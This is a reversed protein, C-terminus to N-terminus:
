RQSCLYRKKPPPTRPLALLRHFPSPHVFCFEIFIRVGLYLCSFLGVKKKQCCQFPVYLLRLLGKVGETMSSGYSATSYGTLTYDSAGSVVRPQNYPKLIGNKSFTSAGSVVRNRDSSRSSFTNRSQAGTAVGPADKQNLVNPTNVGSPVQHKSHGSQGSETTQSKRLVHKQQLSQGGIVTLSDTYKALTHAGVGSVVRSHGGSTEM